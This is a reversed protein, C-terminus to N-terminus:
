KPFESQNHYWTLLNQINKFNKRNQEVRDVGQFISIRLKQSELIKM